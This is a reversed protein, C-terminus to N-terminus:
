FKATLMRCKIPFPLISNFKKNKSLNIKESLLNYNNFPFNEPYFNGATFQTTIILDYQKRLQNLKVANLFYVVMKAKFNLDKDTNRSLNVFTKANDAGEYFKIM